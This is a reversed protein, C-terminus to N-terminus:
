HVLGYAMQHLAEGFLTHFLEDVEYVRVVGVGLMRKKQEGGVRCAFIESRYRWITLVLLLTSPM